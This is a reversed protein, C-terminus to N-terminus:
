LPERRVTHGLFTSSTVKPRKNPWKTLQNERMAVGNVALLVVVKSRIMHVKTQLLPELQGANPANLLSLKVHGPEKCTRGRFIEAKTRRCVDYWDSWHM